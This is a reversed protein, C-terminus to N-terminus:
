YINLPSESKPVFVPAGATSAPQKQKILNLEAEIRQIKESGDANQIKIEIPATVTFQKDLTNAAITDLAAMAQANALLEKEVGERTKKAEDSMPPQAMHNIRQRDLLSRDPNPSIFKAAIDSEEELTGTSFGPITSINQNVPTPTVMSPQNRRYHAADEVEQLLELAPDILGSLRDGGTGVQPLIPNQLERAFNPNQGQFNIQDRMRDRLRRIAPNGQQGYGMEQQRALDDVELKRQQAPSLAAFINSQDEAAKGAESLAKRLKEQYEELASATMKGLEENNPGAQQTLRSVEAQAQRRRANAAIFDQMGQRQAGIAGSTPRTGLIDQTSGGAQAAGVRGALGALAGTFAGGTLFQAMATTANATRVNEALDSTQLAELRSQVGLMQAINDPMQQRKFELATQTAAIEAFNQNRLTDALESLSSDGTQAAAQDLMDARAFARGRLSQALGGEVQDKLKDAAPGMLDAGMFENLNGLLNGAAQGTKVSDGRNSATIFDSLSTNFSDEMDDMREPNLFAEIGGGAKAQQDIKNQAQQLQTQLESMRLQQQRTREAEQMAAYQQGLIKELGLGGLGVKQGELAMGPLAAQTLIDSFEQMMEGAGKGMNGAQLGRLRGALEQEAQTVDPGGADVKEFLSKITSQGSLAKFMDETGKERVKTAKKSADENIEMRKVMGERATNQFSTSFQEALKAGGKLVELDFDRNFQAVQKQANAASMAMVQMINALANFRQNNEVIAQNAAATAAANRDLAEQLIRLQEATADGNKMLLLMQQGVAATFGGMGSIIGSVKLGEVGLKEFAQIMAEENEASTMGVSGTAAQRIKLLEADKDVNPIDKIADNFVDLLKAADAKMQRKGQPSFALGEQSPDEYKSSLFKEKKERAEKVAEFTEFAKFATYVLAAVGVLAILAVSLTGIAAVAGAVATSFGALIGGGAAGSGVLAADSAVDVGAGSIVAATTANQAALQAADAAAERVEGQSDVVMQKASTSKTLYNNLAMVAHITGLVALIKGGVNLINSLTKEKASKNIAAITQKQADLSKQAMTLDQATEAAAKGLAAQKDESDTLTMIQTRLAPELKLLAATYKKQAAQIERADSGELAETYASLAQQTQQIADGQEKLRVTAEEIAEANRTYASPAAKLSNSFSMYAAAGGLLIGYLKGMTGSVMSTVAVLGMLGNVGANLAATTKQMGESAGETAESLTNTVLSAIMMAGFLKESGMTQKNTSSTNKNKSEANKNNSDIVKQSSQSNKGDLGPSTGAGIDRFNMAAFNPIYGNALVDKLGRPEDRTNTVALGFPNSGSALRRDSGVRIAGMSVGANNERRIADGLPGGAFNPIYGSAKFGQTKLQNGIAKTLVSTKAIKGSVSKMTEYEGFGSRKADVYKAKQLPGLGTKFISKYLAQQAETKANFDGRLYDWTAGSAPTKGLIGNVTTEFVRGVFQPFGSKDDALALKSIPSPIDKKDFGGGALARALKVFAPEMEKKVLNDFGGGQLGGSINQAANVQPIGTLHFGLPPNKIGTGKLIKKANSDQALFGNGGGSIGTTFIAAGGGLRVSPFQGKRALQKNKAKATAYLIAGDSNKPANQLKTSNLLTSLQGQETVGKVRNMVDTRSGIFSKTGQNYVEKLPIKAQRVFNPIFGHALAKQMAPSMIVTGKKGNPGIMDKKKEHGNYTAMFSGGQGDFIRGRRTQPNSMQGKTYMGSLAMASVEGQDAFNPIYGSAKGGTKITTTGKVKGVQAGARTMNSALQTAVNNMSVLEANLHKYSGLIQQAAQDVSIEGRQIQALVKPNQQLINLIGQQLQRQERFSQNLGSFTNFADVAFKRLNNFLQFLAVGAIALGPGALFKGLGGLLTQALGKGGEEAEKSGSLKTTIFNVLGLVNRIAPEFTLKGVGAALQTLNQLTENLGAALTKNLEANRKASEGQARSAIETASTFVSYQSGLDRLSAKLVNIQFVGGVLEAIQAQQAEGLRDFTNALNKLIQTASLSAGAANKTKVGLEDLASLVRPRQIRTFITKFSNGIVAGGRATIQQAATVIGLLENLSVGAGEATSGVRRLAEALDAGSVAFAQDVAILKDVVATSSLAANRFGNLAATIANVSEEVGLGSLRALIMADSTRKLTEEMALGQRALEGGALAVDQFSRGTKKAINFLENGFGALKKQSTGLIVNVEALSKEVQITARVTETLAREIAYIAGASAGFALVRANSAALSKDFEGLEGKIKGLPASFNKSNLDLNVSKSSIKDIDRRLPKTDGRVEVDIKPRAM